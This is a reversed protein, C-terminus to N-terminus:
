QLHCPLTLTALVGNDPCNDLVITGKHLLVVVRVFNLGLGTSKKGTDPRQLSFFKDFIKSKAYDPIGPGHDRISFKLRKGETEGLLEITANLPSFEIANQIINSLAQYLLFPEGEVEIDSSFQCSVSLGKKLLLAQKSELVKDTLMKFSITEKKELVKLNELASLELMRDVIDQIRNAENRINALFRRKQEPEMKEELLEAAGRIASLPSKIEHTLTQVYEEVYNKGELADRMKEFAKGMEGIESKDLKPLPISKGERVNNAYETLRKVSRTMWLSVIFSLLAAVALSIGAVEIFQPKAHALLSNVATTPKGVTLVGAIKENVIIPAAVYLVSSTLDDPDKKTTRAGYKGELTLSVDRWHLYDEGVRNKDESDFVVMGKSDTIYVRMDVRTKLHDYIRASFAREYAKEFIRYLDESRFTESKMRAGIMAALINAQDVLPDELSELYRIRLNDLM